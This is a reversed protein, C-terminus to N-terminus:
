GLHDQRAGTADSHRDNYPTHTILRPDQHLSAITPVVILLSIIIALSM